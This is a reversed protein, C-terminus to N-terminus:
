ASTVAEWATTYVNLKNTSTNYIVMGASPSAINDRQTGTMRPPIFALTTSQLDLIASTTLTTGGILVSGSTARFALHTAGTLSTNTPNYDVGILLGNFGVGTNWTPTLNLVRGNIGATSTAMGGTFTAMNIAGAWTSGGNRQFVVGNGPSSAPLNFNFSANGSGPTINQYQITGQGMTMTAGSATTINGDTTITWLNTNASNEVFIARHTSSSAAGTVKLSTYRPGGTGGSFSPLIDVAIANQGSGALVLSQRIAIGYLTDSLTGTATLTGSFLAHYQNNASATWTGTFVHQSAANSTITAVGTLTSTGTLAWGGGQQDLQYRTGGNQFTFYLHDNYHELAGAETIALLGGAADIKASAKGAAPTGTAAPIHLRATPNSLFLGINGIQENPPPNTGDNGRAFICNGINIMAAESSSPAYTYDGIFISHAGTTYANVGFAGSQAGAYYGIFINNRGSGTMQMGAGFGIGVNDEGVAKNLARYGIAVNEGATTALILADTGIAVNHQAGNISLGANRGMLINFTGINTGRASESGGIIINWNPTGTFSAPINNTNGWFFSNISSFYGMRSGGIQLYKNTNDWTLNSDDSIKSSANGFAIRTATLPIDDSVLARFTPAAAAGTSPGAYVLNANQNIATFTPTTTPNATTFLPSLDGVSKVTGSGGAQSSASNTVIYSKITTM